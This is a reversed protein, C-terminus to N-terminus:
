LTDNDYVFESSVFQAVEKYHAIAGKMYSGGLFHPNGKYECM